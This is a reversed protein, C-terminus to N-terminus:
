KEPILLCRIAEDLAPYGTESGDLVNLEAWDDNILGRFSADFLLAGALSLHMVQGPIPFPRGTLPDVSLLLLLESYMM